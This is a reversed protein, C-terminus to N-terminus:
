ELSQGTGVPKEFCFVFDKWPEPAYSELAVYGTRQYLAIAEPQEPGTGLIVRAAGQEGAWTELAELLAISVGRRRAADTTFVRKVELEGLHAEARSYILAAHGVPEGDLEAIVTHAVIEPTIDDKLAADAEESTSTWERILDAYRAHLETTMQARLTVARPDDWRVATVTPTTARSTV